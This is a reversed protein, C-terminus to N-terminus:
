YMYRSSYYQVMLEFVIIYEVLSNFKNDGFKDFTDFAHFGLINSM